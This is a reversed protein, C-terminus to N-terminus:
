YLIYQIQLLFALIRQLPGQHEFNGSATYNNELSHRKPKWYLQTQKEKKEAIKDFHVKKDTVPVSVAEHYLFRSPGCNFTNTIVHTVLVFVGKGSIHSDM